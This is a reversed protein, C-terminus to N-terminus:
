SLDGAIYFLASLTLLSLTTTVLIGTSTRAVYIRYRQVLVFLNAGTPLAAMLVCIMFVRPQDSLLWTAFIWTLAPHVLLKLVTMSAVEARGESLPLGVLSLGIAFLACPGAAAGLINGYTQVSTPVPLGALAWLFGVVPAVLIPSKCVAGAVKRLAALGSGSHRDTEIVATLVAINLAANVITAIIAPPLAAEGYATLVLPIGMYGVNGYIGVTGHTAAESLSVKFFTKAVVFGILLTSIQGLLYAALFPGNLVTATDIKAMAIFLLVPLAFYFVFGNLAESSDRGLLKRWGALYGTLILGFVPLVVNVISNM